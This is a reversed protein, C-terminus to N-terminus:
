AICDSPITKWTPAFDIRLKKMTRLKKTTKPNIACTAVELKM